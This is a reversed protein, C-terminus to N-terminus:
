RRPLSSVLLRYFNRFYLSSFIARQTLSSEAFNNSAMIGDFSFAASKHNHFVYEGSIPFLTERFSGVDVCLIESGGKKIRGRLQGNWSENSMQLVITQKRNAKSYKNLSEIM